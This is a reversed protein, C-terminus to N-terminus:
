ALTLHQSGKARLHLGRQGIQEGKKPPRQASTKGDQRWPWGSASADAAYWAAAQGKGPATRVWRGALLPCGIPVCWRIPTRGLEKSRRRVCPKVLGGCSMEM